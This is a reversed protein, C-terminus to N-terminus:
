ASACDESLEHHLGDEGVSNGHTHINGVGHKRVTRYEVGVKIFVIQKQPDIKLQEAEAEGQSRHIGYIEKVGDNLGTQYKRSVWDARAVGGTLNQVGYVAVAGLNVEEPSVFSTVERKGSM